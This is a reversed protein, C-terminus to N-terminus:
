IFDTAGRKVAEVACKIDGYATIIFVPFEPAIELISGLLELGDVDPLKLDFVGVSFVDRNFVDIAEEASACSEFSIDAKRFNLELMKRFNENDEVLLIKDM